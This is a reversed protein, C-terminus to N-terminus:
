DDLGQRLTFWCFGLLMLGPVVTQVLGIAVTALGGAICGIGFALLLAPQKWQPVGGPIDSTTGYPLLRRVIGSRALDVSLQGANGTMVSSLPGIAPYLRHAVIQTSMAFLLFAGVLFQGLLSSELEGPWVWALIGGAIMTVAEIVYLLRLGSLGRGGRSLHMDHLGAAIAGLLIFVPIALLKPLDDLQFGTAIDAGLVVLNGTVHAAMLQNLGVFSSADIWGAILSLLPILYRTRTM